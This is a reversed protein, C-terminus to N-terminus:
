RIRLKLFSPMGPGDHDWARMMAQGAYGGFVLTMYALVCIKASKFAHEQIAVQEPRAKPSHNRRLIVLPGARLLLPRARHLLRIDAGNHIGLFQAHIQPSACTGSWGPLQITSYPCKGRISQDRFIALLPDLCRARCM